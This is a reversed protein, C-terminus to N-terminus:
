RVINYLKQIGVHGSSEHIDKLIKERDAMRPVIRPVDNSMDYLVGHM